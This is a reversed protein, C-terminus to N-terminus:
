PHGGACRAAANHHRGGLWWCPTWPEGRGWGEGPSSFSPRSAGLFEPSLVLPAAARKGGRRHVRGPTSPPHGRSTAVYHIPWGGIPQVQPLPWAASGQQGEALGAPKGQSKNGRTTPGGHTPGGDRWRVASLSGGLSWARSRMMWDPCSTVATRAWLSAKTSSSVHKRHPAGCCVHAWKHACHGARCCALCPNPGRLGRVGWPLSKRSSHPRARRSGPQSGGAM